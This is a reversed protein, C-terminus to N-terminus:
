DAVLRADAWASRILVEVREIEPHMISLPDSEVVGPDTPKSQRVSCCLISILYPILAVNSQNVSHNILQHTM